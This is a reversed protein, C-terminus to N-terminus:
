GIVKTAEALLEQPFRVGIKNASTQYSRARQFIATVGRM